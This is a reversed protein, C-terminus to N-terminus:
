FSLLTSIKSAPFPFTLDSLATLAVTSPLTIASNLSRVAASNTDNATQDDCLTTVKMVM